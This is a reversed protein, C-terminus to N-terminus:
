GFKKKLREYERREKEEKAVRAIKSKESAVREKNKRVEYEKDNELRYVSFMTEVGGDYGYPEVTFEVLYGNAIEHEYHEAKTAFLTVLELPTMGDMEEFSFDDNRDLVLKRDAM